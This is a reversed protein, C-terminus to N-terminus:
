GNSEGFFTTTPSTRLRMSPTLWQFIMVSGRKENAFLARRNANLERSGAWIRLYNGSQCLAMGERLRPWPLRESTYGLRGAIESCVVWYRAMKTGSFSLSRIGNLGGPCAENQSAMLVAFSPSTSKALSVRRLLKRLIGCAFLSRTLLVHMGVVEQSNYSM